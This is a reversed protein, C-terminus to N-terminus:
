SWIETSIINNVHYSYKKYILSKWGIWFDSKQSQIWFKKVNKSFMGRVYLNAGYSYVVGANNQAVCEYKGEDTFESGRIQLWGKGFLFRFFPFYFRLTPWTEKSFLITHCCTTMIINELSKFITFFIRM